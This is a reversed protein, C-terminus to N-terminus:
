RPRCTARRGAASRAGASRRAPDSRRARRPDVAALGHAQMAKAYGERRSVAIVSDGGDIHAIRRHGLGVLHDVAQAMGHEDSTRVVDVAPDDVHWGVVVM